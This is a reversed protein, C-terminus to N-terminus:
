FAHKQYDVEIESLNLFQIAVHSKMLLVVKCPHGNTIECHCELDCSGSVEGPNTAKCQNFMKYGIMEECSTSRSTLAFEELLQCSIPQNMKLTLNMNLSTM